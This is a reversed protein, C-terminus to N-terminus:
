LFIYGNVYLIVFLSLLSVSSFKIIDSLVKNKAAPLALGVYLPFLVSLYRAFGLAEHMSLYVFLFLATYVVYSLRVRNRLLYIVLSIGLLMFGLTILRYFAPYTLVYNLTSAISVFGVKWASANNYFALPESFKIQLYLMYSLTGLPIFFLSAFNLKINKFNPRFRQWNLSFYEFLLPIFILVGIVKTLAVLFGCIGVLWWRKKRAFYFTTIVLALFLSETYIISFFFTTPFILLFLAATVATEHNYDLAILKYLLYVALMLAINSILLGAAEFSGALPALLKIMLPYLPFYM